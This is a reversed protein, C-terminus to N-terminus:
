PLVALGQAGPSLAEVHLVEGEVGHHSLRILPASEVEEVAVSLFGGVLNVYRQEERKLDKPWGGAHENSGAGCGYERLGTEPDVSVYQWHRDGCLVLMNEQEAM